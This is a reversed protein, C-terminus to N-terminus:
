VGLAAKVATWESPSPFRRVRVREPAESTQELHGSFLAEVTQWPVILREPHLGGSGRNFIIHDTRPLLSEVGETLVCYSRVRAPDAADDRLAFTAVFLETGARHHLKDLAIKQDRYAHSLSLTELTRASGALEQPLAPRRWGERTRRLLNGSLPFPEQQLCRQAELILARLATADTSDASLLIGRNPIAFAAHAAFRQRARVEDLLVFTEEYTVASTLRFVGHGVPDWHPRPLNRLNHFAYAWIEEDPADWAEAHTRTVYSMHQGFDYLLVLLLDDLWPRRMVPPLPTGGGRGDIELTITAYRSRVAPYLSSRALTWLRPIDSISCDGAPRTSDQM